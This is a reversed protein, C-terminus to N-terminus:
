HETQNRSGGSEALPLFCGFASLTGLSFRGSGTDDEPGLPPLVGVAGYRQRKSSRGGGGPLGFAAPTLPRRCVRLVNHFLISLLHIHRTLVTACPLIFTKYHPLPCVVMTGNLSVPGRNVRYARYADVLSATSQSRLCSMVSDVDGLADVPVLRPFLFSHLFGGGGRM